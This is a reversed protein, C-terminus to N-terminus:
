KANWPPPIHQERHRHRQSPKDTQLMIHHALCTHWEIRTRTSKNIRIRLALSKVLGAYFAHRERLDFRAPHQRTARTTKINISPVLLVYQSRVRARALTHKTNQRHNTTTTSSAADDDDAENAFTHRASAAPLTDNHRLFFVAATHTSHATAIQPNHLRERVSRRAASVSRHNIHLADEIKRHTHTKQFMICTRKRACPFVRFSLARSRAKSRIFDVNAIHQQAYAIQTSKACIHTNKHVTSGPPHQGPAISIHILHLTHCQTSRHTRLPFISKTYLHFSFPCKPCVM